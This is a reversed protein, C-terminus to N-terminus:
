ANQVNEDGMVKVEVQHGEYIFKLGIVQRYM